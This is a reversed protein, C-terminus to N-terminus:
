SVREVTQVTIHYCNGYRAQSNPGNEVDGRVAADHRDYARWNRRPDSAWHVFTSRYFAAFLHNRDRSSDELSEVTLFTALETKDTIHGFNLKQTSQAERLYRWSEAEALSAGNSAVRNITVIVVHYRLAFRCKASKKKIPHNQYFNRVNVRRSIFWVMLPSTPWVGHIRINATDNCYPQAYRIQMHGSTSYDIFIKLSLFSLVPSYHRNQHFLRM